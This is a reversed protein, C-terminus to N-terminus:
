GNTVENWSMLIGRMDEFSVGPVPGSDMVKALINSMADGSHLLNRRDVATQKSVILMANYLHDRERLTTM